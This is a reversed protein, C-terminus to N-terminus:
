CCFGVVLFKIGVNSQYEMNSLWIFGYIVQDIKDTFKEVPEFYHFLGCEASEYRLQNVM